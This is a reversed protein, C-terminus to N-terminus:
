YDAPSIIILVEHLTQVRLERRKLYLLLSQSYCYDVSQSDDIVSEHEILKEHKKVVLCKWSSMFWYCYMWSEMWYHQLKRLKIGLYNFYNWDQHCGQCWWNRKQNEQGILNLDEWYMMKIKMCYDKMSWYRMAMEKCVLIVRLQMSMLWM